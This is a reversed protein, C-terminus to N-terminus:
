RWTQKNTQGGWVSKKKKFWEARQRKVQVTSDPKSTQIQTAKRLYVGCNCWGTQGWTGVDGSNRNGSQFIVKNKKLFPSFCFVTYSSTFAQLKRLPVEGGCLFRVVSRQHNVFWTFTVGNAAAEYHNRPYLHSFHHVNSMLKLRKVTNLSFVTSAQYMPAGCFIMLLPVDFFISMHSFIQFLHEVFSQSPEVWPRFHTQKKYM